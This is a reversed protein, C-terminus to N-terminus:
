PEQRAGDWDSNCAANEGIETREPACGSEGREELCSNWVPWLVVTDPWSNSVSM